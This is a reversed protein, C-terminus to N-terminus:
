SLRALLLLSLSRQKPVNSKRTTNRVSAYLSAYDKVYAQMMGHKVYRPPKTSTIYIGM